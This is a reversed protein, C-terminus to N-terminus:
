AGNSEQGPGPDDPVPAEMAVPPRSETYESTRRRVFRPIGSAQYDTAIDNFVRRSQSFVGPWSSTARISLYARNVCPLLMVISSTGARTTCEASGHCYVVIPRRVSERDVDM